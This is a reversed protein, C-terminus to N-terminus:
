STHSREDRTVPTELRSGIAPRLIYGGSSLISFRVTFNASPASSRLIIDGDANLLESVAM